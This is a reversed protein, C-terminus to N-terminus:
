AEYIWTEGLYAALPVSRLDQQQQKQKTKSSDMVAVNSTYVLGANYYTLPTGKM